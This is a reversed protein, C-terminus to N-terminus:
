KKADGWANTPKNTIVKRGDAPQVDSWDAAAGAGGKKKGKPPKNVYGDKPGVKIVCLMGASSLQYQIEAIVFEDDFGVAEDRVRVLMNHRWLTGDAQRWGNVTYTTALAMAKRHAREYRVRDTASTSTSEGGQKIILVRRRGITDDTISATEGAVTDGFEDDSGPRQGKVIYETFVDKFDLPADCRLINQGLEIASTATGTSGVEIFVLRGEADDTGLQQRLKLMREISEFVTEGQEIAHTLAPGTDVQTTVEVGYPKALDAAIRELKAARWQGPSNIAACDVLDATKSRGRVGVTVSTGDYSVPTADVYGTLVKDAGIFVECVDGPHVRRPIDTNGPWSNTITLDFDRVQREIGAQISVSKWGGWEVGAILLRVANSPATM